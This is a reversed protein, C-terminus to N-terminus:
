NLYAAVALMAFAIVAVVVAFLLILYGPGDTPEWVVQVRKRERRKRLNGDRPVSTSDVISDDLGAVSSGNQKSKIPKPEPPKANDIEVKGGCHYCYLSAARLETGCAKCVEESIVENRVTV